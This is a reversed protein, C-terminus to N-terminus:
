TRGLEPVFDRVSLKARDFVAKRVLSYGNSHIGSSALGLVIDGPRITRGNIIRDREVVGVCFGAMDYDGAQYFDPLIATEGGVLACDAEMCGDSIGRILERTLAPDDRPMALYDLFLLPEGGTCLCDNVSMPVLDIDLRGLNGMLGAIKLKSGVGDTCTVLVPHRYNRAFLRSNYDLSFLSAFFGAKRGKGHPAATADLVRPTHTRKLLPAMSALSQEYLELDLGAARYTLKTKENDKM